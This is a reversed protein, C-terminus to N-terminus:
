DCVLPLSFRAAQQGFSEKKGGEGSPSRLPRKSGLMVHHDVAERACGAVFVRRSVPALCIFIDTPARLCIAPLSLRGRANGM